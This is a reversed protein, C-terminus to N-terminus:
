FMKTILSFLSIGSVIKKGTGVLFISLPKGRGVDNDREKVKPYINVFWYKTKNTELGYLPKFSELSSAAIVALYSATTWM